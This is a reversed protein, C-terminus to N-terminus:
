QTLMLRFAYEKCGDIRHRRRVHAINPMAKAQKSNRHRNIGAGVSRGQTIIRDLLRSRERLQENWRRLRGKTEADIATM